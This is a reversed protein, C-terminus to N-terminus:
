VKQLKDEVYYEHQNYFYKDLFDLFYIEGFLTQVLESMKEKLMSDLEITKVSSDDMKQRNTPIEM